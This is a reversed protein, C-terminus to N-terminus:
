IILQKMKLTVRFEEGRVTLMGGLAKLAARTDGATLANALDFAGPGATAISVASIDEVTIADRPNAHLSLKEIEGDLAAYDRGVWEELLQAAQPDIKKGRRGAADAIWRSLSGREPVTCSIVEGVRAVAKALRTNAPWSSVVLVLVSQASPSEVYKELAERHASVFEDAPSILVIRRAALFPLTRLEDLVATLEVTSDYQGLCTQPDAEGAAHAIVERRAADLLYADEGVLVIVPKLSGPRAPKASDKSERAQKAMIRQKGDPPM